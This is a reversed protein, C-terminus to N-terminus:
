ALLTVRLLKKEAEKVIQLLCRKSIQSFDWKWIFLDSKYRLHKLSLKLSLYNTPRAIKSKPPDLIKQTECEYTKKKCIKERM